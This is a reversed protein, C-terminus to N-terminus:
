IDMFNGKYNVTKSIGDTCNSEELVIVEVNKGKTFLEYAAILGDPGTEIVIMKKDNGLEFFGYVKIACPDKDKLYYLHCLIIIIDVFLSEIAM